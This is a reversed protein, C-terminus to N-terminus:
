RVIFKQGGAVYVGSPLEITKSGGNELAFRAVQQGLVNHVTVMTDAGTLRFTASSNRGVILLGNSDTTAENIGTMAKDAVIAQEVKIAFNSGKTLDAIAFDESGTKYILFYVMRLTPTGDSGDRALVDDFDMYDTVAPLTGSYWQRVGMANEAISSGQSFQASRGNVVYYAYVPDNSAARARQQKDVESRLMFRGETENYLMVVATYNEFTSKDSMLRARLDLGNKKYETPYTLRNVISVNQADSGNNLNLDASPTPWVWVSDGAPASADNYLTGGQGDFGDRSSWESYYPHRYMNFGSYTNHASNFYNTATYTMVGIQGQNYVAYITICGGDNDPFDQESPM